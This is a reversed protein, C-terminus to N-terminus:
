QVYDVKGKLEQENPHLYDYDARSYIELSYTTTAAEITILNIVQDTLKYVRTILPKNYMIYSDDAPVQLIGIENIISKFTDLDGFCFRLAPHFTRKNYGPLQLNIANFLFFKPMTITVSNTFLTTANLKTEVQSIYEIWAPTEFKTNEAPQPQNNHFSANLPNNENKRALALSDLLYRTRSQFISSDADKLSVISKLKWSGSEIYDQINILASRQLLLLRNLSINQAALALPTLLGALL